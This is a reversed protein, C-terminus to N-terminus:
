KEVCSCGRWTMWPNIAAYSHSGDEFWRVFQKKRIIHENLIAKQDTSELAAGIIHLYMPAVDRNYADTTELM